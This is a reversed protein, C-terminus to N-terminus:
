KKESETKAAEDRAKSDRILQLSNEVAGQYKTLMQVLVEHNKELEATTLMARREWTQNNARHIRMALPGHSPKARRTSM